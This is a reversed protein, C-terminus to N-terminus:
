NKVITKNHYKRMYNDANRLYQFTRNITFGIAKVDFITIGISAGFMSYNLADPQDSLLLSGGSATLIVADYITKGAKGRVDWLFM